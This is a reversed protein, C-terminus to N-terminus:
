RAKRVAYSKMRESMHNLNFTVGHSGSESYLTVSGSQKKILKM